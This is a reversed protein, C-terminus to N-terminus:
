PAVEEWSLLSVQLAFPLTVAGLSQQTVTLRNSGAEVTDAIVTGTVDLDRQLVLKGDAILLADDLNCNKTVVIDGGAIIALVAGKPPNIQGDLVLDGDAVLAVLLVQDWPNNGFSLTGVTGSGEIHAIYYLPWHPPGGGKLDPNDLRTGNPYDIDIADLPASDFGASGLEPLPIVTGGQIIPPTAVVRHGPDTLRGGLITTGTFRLSGGFVTLDGGIQTSGSVTLEGGPWVVSNRLALALGIDLTDLVLVRGRVTRTVRGCTGTATVIVEAPAEPDPAVSVSYTGDAGPLAVGSVGAWGPDSWLEAVARHLGAEALDLAQLAQRESTVLMLNARSLEALALGVLLLATVTLLVILMAAGRERNLGRRM